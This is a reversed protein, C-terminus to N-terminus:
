LVDIIENMREIMNFHMKYIDKRQNCITNREYDSMNLYHRIKDSFTQIDCFDVVQKLTDYQKSLVDVNNINEHIVIVNNPIMLAIRYMDIDCFDDFRSIIISIKSHRLYEIYTKFDIHSHICFTNQQCTDKLSELVRTRKENINGCFVIDISKSLPYYELSQHYMLSFTTREIIEKSNYVCRIINYPDNQIKLPKKIVMHATYNFISYDLYKLCRGSKMIENMFYLYSGSLTIFEEANIIIIKHKTRKVLVGGIRPIYMRIDSIVIDNETLNGIDDIDLFQCIFNKSTLVEKILKYFERILDSVHGWSQYLYIMNINWINDLQNKRVCVLFLM